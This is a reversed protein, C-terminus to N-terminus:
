RPPPGLGGVPLPGGTNTAGGLVRRNEVRLWEPGDARPRKNCIYEHAMRRRRGGAPEVRVVRRKGLRVWGDPGVSRSLVNGVPDQRPRAAAAEGSVRDAERPRGDPGRDVGSSASSSAPLAAAFEGGPEPEVEYDGMYDGARGAPGAAWSRTTPGRFRAHDPVADPAWFTFSFEPIPEAVAEFGRSETNVFIAGEM